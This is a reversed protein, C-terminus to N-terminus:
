VPTWGHENEYDSLEDDTALEQDSLGSGLSVPLNSQNWVVLFVQTLLWVQSTLM